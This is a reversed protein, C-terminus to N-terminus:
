TMPMLYGTVTCPEKMNSPTSFFGRLVSIRFASLDNSQRALAFPPPPTRFPPISMRMRGDDHRRIRNFVIREPCVSRDHGDAIDAAKRGCVGSGWCVHIRVHQPLRSSSAPFSQEHPFTMM